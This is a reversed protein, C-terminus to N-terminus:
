IYMHISTNSYDIREDQPQPVFGVTTPAHPHPTKRIPPARSGHGPSAFPELRMFCLRNAQKRLEFSHQAVLLNHLGIRYRMYM